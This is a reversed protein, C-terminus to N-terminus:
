RRETDSALLTSSSFQRTEYRNRTSAQCISSSRYRRRGSAIGELSMMLALHSGRFARVEYPLRRGQTGRPPPRCIVFSHGDLDLWVVVGQRRIWERLDAELVASIPGRIAASTTM